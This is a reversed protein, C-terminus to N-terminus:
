KVSSVGSCLVFQPNTAGNKYLVNVLFNVSNTHTCIFVKPTPQPPPMLNHPRVSLVCPCFSLGLKHPIVIQLYHPLTAVECQLVYSVGFLVGGFFPKKSFSNRHALSCEVFVKMFFPRRHERLAFRWVADLFFLFFFALFFFCPSNKIRPMVHTKERLIQDSRKDTITLIQFSNWNRLMKQTTLPRRPSKPKRRRTEQKNQKNKTKKKPPNQFDTPSSKGEQPEQKIKKPYRPFRMATGM